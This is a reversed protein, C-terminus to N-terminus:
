KSFWDPSYWEGSEGTDSESLLNICSKSMTDIIFIRSHYNKTRACVIHRGDPAWSPNEYNADHESIRRIDRTKPNLVAIQYQRGIRSSYVIFGNSGWDPDVNESGSGTIREPKGGSRDIVYLQPSGARDSVFVIKRGDPSWAPSAEAAQKTFTLRTLRGSSLDKIFLDPNGDKSLTLAVERGNPSIAACTNLGPYNAICKRKASSLNILYIDPFHSRYSTYVVQKGKPGWKPAVSVTKDNTLQHLNYGDADCVYLEKKGTRTGVMVIRASAMGRQGTLAFVIDDAVRHALQRADVAPVTYTKGLYREKTIVHYVECRVVVSSGVKESTGIITFEARGSSITTFWGSRVLDSELVQRFVAPAGDSQSKFGSMDLLFIEKRVKIVRVQAGCPLQICLIALLFALSMQKM